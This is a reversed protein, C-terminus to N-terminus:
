ICRRTLQTLHLLILATIVFVFLCFDLAISTDKLIYLAVPTVIPRLSRYRLIVLFSLYSICQCFWYKSFAVIMWLISSVLELKWTFYRVVACKALILLIEIKAHSSSVQCDNWWTQVSEPYKRIKNLLEHRLEYIGLKYTIIACRKVRPLLWNPLVGFLRM